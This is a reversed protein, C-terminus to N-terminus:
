LNDWCDCNCEVVHQIAENVTFRASPLSSNIFRSDLAPDGPDFDIMVIPTIIPTGSLGTPMGTIGTTSGDPVNPYVIPNTNGDTLTSLTGPKTSSTPYFLDDEVYGLPDPAPNPWSPTTYGGPALGGEIVGNSTLLATQSGTMTNPITNNLPIGIDALRKKNRFERMLAIASQGGATERDVIMEITQASMHPRTDLSYTAMGDVFATISQQNTFSSIRPITAPILGLYRARQEVALMTGLLNWSENLSGVNDVHTAIETNADDIYDQVVSDFNITGGNSGNTAEPLYYISPPTQITVEPLSSSSGTTFNITKIKGYTAIDSEDTGITATGSFSGTITLTPTPAGARGYGGGADTITWGTITYTSGNYTYTPTFIPERWSTALYLQQYVKALYVNENINIDACKPSINLQSIYDNILKWPYPLGSMNGFFDSYTFSGGMGSGLAIRSAGQLRLAENVPSDTGNALDGNNANIELDAFINMSDSEIQAINTIQLMAYRFAGAPLSITKPLTNFLYSDFGLLLSDSSDGTETNSTGPNGAPIITGIQTKISSSDLSSNIGGEENYILYYTKSNTPLGLETNYVPVTMSKWSLPFLRQLDLCDALTRLKSIDTTNPDSAVRMVSLPAVPSLINYLNEGFIISFASYMQKEQELTALKENSIIGDIDSISIGSANLALMLDKSGSNYKILTKLLTSPYGFRDLTKPNILKGLNACDTGFELLASNVGSVDGTMLDNMNSFSGQLFDKANALTLISPNMSEVYGSASNFSNLFESYEPEALTPSAAEWNFENWAQLAHCRIWGWQTIGVNPNTSNYPYWTASQQQDRIGSESYGSSAPGPLVPTSATGTGQSATGTGTGVGSAVFTIGVKYNNITTSGVTQNISVSYLGSVSATYPQIIGTIFTGPEISGGWLQDGVEINRSTYNEPFSTVTLTTATISGDFRTLRDLYNHWDLGIDDWDTTGLSVVTYSNNEVFDTASVLGTATAVFTTGVNFTKITTSSVNKSINVIYRGTGGTGTDFAIIITNESIDTGSLYDGISIDEGSAATVTLVDNSISGTLTSKEAGLLSFDTSTVTEITYSIGLQYNGTTTSVSTGGYEVAQTTWTGSPDSVIYTPPKANGLAPCVNAGISILNDYTAPSMSGDVLRSHGPSMAYTVMRLVTNEVLSGPTYTSNNKSSGIIEATPVNIVLDDNNLLAGLLNVGNPSQIGTDAM